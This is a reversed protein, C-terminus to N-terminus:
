VAPPSRRSHLAQRAFPAHGAYLADGGLEEEIHMLRNYKAIREGRCPAGAKIQGASTGVALDAITTDLTEGSRHSVIVGWGAQRALRMTELTETLTGVQNPKVLVANALRRDIGENVRTPDSVFLDDGILQVREELRAHLAMWGEVDDEGLPDELAIIPHRGVLDVWRDVLEGSRLTVGERPLEYGDSGHWQSAAADIALMVDHGPHHGAREIAAELLRLAAETSPLDPAFGGEDGVSTSAGQEVLLDRLAWQVDVAVHMADAFSEAAWPVIMLEQIDLSSRAHAGGNILNLMPVPLVHARDGGLYRWLPLGADAAAAHTCALSVGILANAGLRGKDFTGDLEILRLDVRLQDGADVDHLAAGIEERIRHAVSRVGLGHFRRDPDRAEVAERAGTSRGAPVGVCGRAGSRLRVEVELTPAGRSDLVERARIAAIRADSVSGWRASQQLESM